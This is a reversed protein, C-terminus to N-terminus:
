YGLMEMTEDFLPRIAHHIDMPPYAPKPSLVQEAYLYFKEDDPLECFRLLRALAEKPKLVVDEYRVMHICGPNEKMRRLGERMTVIWEVAAMDTHDCFGSIVDFTESFVPDPAVLQELMLKWKRNDRGWWDHVEGDVKVGERGSWAKISQITDWGNRVLFIFKGDPFIARVFPIRFIHEPYKDVVRTSLTASLYVGFLRHAAQKVQESADNADLKYKALGKSYNGIVDEDPYISHWLAKPENLFAIDRHMSLLGGLITTGSRGTGIIFIPKVVRKLQPLHKEIKFHAFVLTNIWRWRTTLPRGEFFCYSILRTILKSPRSKIYLPDLQAIM